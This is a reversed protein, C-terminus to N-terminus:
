LEALIETATERRGKPLDNEGLKAIEKVPDIRRTVAGPFGSSGVPCIEGIAHM